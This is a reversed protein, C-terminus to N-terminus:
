IVKPSSPNIYLHNIVSCSCTYVIPVNRHIFQKSLHPSCIRLGLVLGKIHLVHLFLPRFSQYKKQILVGIESSCMEGDESLRKQSSCISPFPSTQRCFVSYAVRVFAVPNPILIRVEPPQTEKAGEATSCYLIAYLGCFLGHSHHVFSYCKGPILIGTKPPLVFKISTYAVSYAVCVLPVQRPPLNSNRPQM